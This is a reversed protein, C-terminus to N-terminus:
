NRTKMYEAVKNLEGSVKLFGDMVSEFVSKPLLKFSWRNMSADKGVWVEGTGGADIAKVVELGYTLPDPAGEQLRGDALGYLYDRIIYYYSDEPIRPMQVNDFGPTKVSTTVLTVTRVGLPELERRWIDSAMIMAAKSSNYMSMFPMSMLGAASSQNVVCGRAKVLLPAFAQLVALPAFFNVDFLRRAADIDTDLAPMVFNQGSNNVLVDLRGGTAGRVSAVAAAISETSLVDLTLVTVHPANALQAPLKSPTRLTAFVHYGKQAFAEALGAGIGGASCGTILVSKRSSAM